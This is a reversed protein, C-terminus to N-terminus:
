DDCNVEDFINKFERLYQWKPSLYWNPNICNNPSEDVYNIRLEFSQTGALVLVIPFKGPLQNNLLYRYDEGFTSIHGQEIESEIEIDSDVLVKRLFNRVEVDYSLSDNIDADPIMVSYFVPSNNYGVRGIGPKRIKSLVLDIKSSDPTDLYFVNFGSTRYSWEAPCEHLPLGNCNSNKTSYLKQVELNGHTIPAAVLLEFPGLNSAQRGELVYTIYKPNPEESVLEFQSEICHLSDSINNKPTNVLKNCFDEILMSDSYYYFTDQLVFCNLKSDWYSPSVDFEVYNLEGFDDYRVVINANLHTNRSASGVDPYHATKLSDLIYEVGAEGLAGLIYPSKHLITQSLSLTSLLGFGNTFHGANQYIGSLMYNLFFLLSESLEKKSLVSQEKALKRYKVAQFRTKNPEHAFYDSLFQVVGSTDRTIALYLYTFNETWNAFVSTEVNPFHNNYNRMFGFCNAGSKCALKVDDMGIITILLSRPDKEFSYHYMIETLTNVGDRRAGANRFEKAYNHLWSKWLDYAMYDDDLLYNYFNGTPNIWHGLHEYDSCWPFTMGIHHVNSGDSNTGFYAHAMAGKSKFRCNNDNGIIKSHTDVNLTGIDRYSKSLMRATELNEATPFMMNILWVGWINRYHSFSWPRYLNKCDEDINVCIDYENDNITSLKTQDHLIGYTFKGYQYDSEDYVIRKYASYANKIFDRTVDNQYQSIDSIAPESQSLALYEPSNIVIPKAKVLDYYEMTHNQSLDSIISFSSSIAMGEPSWYFINHPYQSYGSLDQYCAPAPHTVNAPFDKGNYQYGANLLSDIVIPSNKLSLNNGQHLSLLLHINGRTALEDDTFSSDDGFKPWSNIHIANESAEHWVEFPFKKDFDRVIFSWSSPGNFVGSLVGEFSQNSVKYKDRRYHRIHGNSFNGQTEDLTHYEVNGSAWSSNILKWGLQYIFEDHYYQGIFIDQHEVDVRAEEKYLKIISVFKMQTESEYVYRGEIRVVNKLASKLLLYATDLVVVFPELDNSLQPMLSIVENDAKRQINLANQHLIVLFHDTDITNFIMDTNDPMLSNGSASKFLSYDESVDGFFSIKAWKVYSDYSETNKNWWSVPEILFHDVGNIYLESLESKRIYGNPFTVAGSISCYISSGLNDPKILVLPIAQDFTHMEPNEINLINLQMQASHGSLKSVKVTFINENEILHLHDRLSDINIAFELNENYKLNIFREDLLEGDSNFLEIIVSKDSQLPENHFVAICHANVDSNFYTKRDSFVSVVAAPYTNIGDLDQPQDFAKLDTIYLYDDCAENEFTISSGDPINLDTNLVFREGAKLLVHTDDDPLDGYPWLKKRARITDMTGQETLSVDYYLDDYVCDIFKKDSSFSNELCSTVLSVSDSCGVNNSVTLFKLLGLLECVPLCNELSTNDELVIRDLRIMQGSGPIGSIDTLGTCNEIHLKNYLRRLDPFSISTLNSMDDIQIYNANELNEINLNILSSCNRILLWSIENAIKINSIDSLIANDSIGITNGLIANVGQTSTLNHCHRIRFNAIYKLCSLGDLNTIGAGQIVLTGTISDAAYEINFNDIQSQTTLTVLSDIKNSGCDQANLQLSVFLFFIPFFYRNM